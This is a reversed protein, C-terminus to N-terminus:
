ESSSRTAIAERALEDARENLPIGSHGPVYKLRVPHAALRKKVAAILEGNAKAKWGLTLVGIAYKSDTHVVVPADKPLHDFVMAIATLEAVNNTAPGLFRYAEKALKGSPDVLVLGSGAPGPNGTCAGDTYAIWPKELPAQASPTKRAPAEEGASRDDVLESSPDLTVNAPSAPYTRADSAGFRIDVRGNSTSPRGLASVRVLVRKGRFTGWQWPM